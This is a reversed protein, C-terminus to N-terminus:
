ESVEPTLKLKKLLEKIINVDKLQVAEEPKLRGTLAQFALDHHRDHLSRTVIVRSLGHLGTDGALVVEIYRSAACLRNAWLRANETVDDAHKWAALHHRNEEHAVDRRFKDLEFNGDDGFFGSLSDERVYARAVAVTAFVLCFDGYGTCGAGGMWLAGYRFDKAGVFRADFDIRRVYWPGLKKRLVDDVTMLGSAADSAAVDYITKREGQELFYVMTRPKLNFAIRGENEVSIAFRVLVAQQQPHHRGM